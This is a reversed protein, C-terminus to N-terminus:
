QPEKIILASIRTWRKAPKPLWALRRGNTYLQAHPLPSDMAESVATFFNERPPFFVALAGPAIM